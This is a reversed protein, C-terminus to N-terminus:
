GNGGGSPESEEGLLEMLARRSVVIRKGLRLVPVPLKDCKALDYALNKSIGLLKAVEPINM